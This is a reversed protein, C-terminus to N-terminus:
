YDRLKQGHMPLRRDDLIMAPRAFLVERAYGEGMRACLFDWIDGMWPTRRDPGHADSAVCTILDAGMLLKATKEAGPGFRGFFSGKNVQILCGMRRWDYILMPDRQVCFYREVHAILPIVGADLASELCALIYGPPADFPVEMLFYRSHNLGMVQGRRILQGLGPDAMIEMGKLLTIPIRARKLERRLQNFAEDLERSCYNEFRGRQNSHPTAVLTDVGSGAAIDAMILSEEMDRSGDDLDPLIHLHLDIM